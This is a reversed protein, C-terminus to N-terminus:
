NRGFVSRDVPVGISIPSFSDVQDATENDQSNQTHQVSASQVWSSLIWWGNPQQAFRKGPNRRLITSVIAYVGKYGRQSTILGADDLKRAIFNVPQAEGADELATQVLQANRGPEQRTPPTAPSDFQPVANGSADIHVLAGELAEREDRARKEQESLERIWQEIIRRRDQFSM